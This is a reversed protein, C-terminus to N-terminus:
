AWRARRFEHDKGALRWREGCNLVRSRQSVSGPSFLQALQKHTQFYDVSSIDALDRQNSWENRYSITQLVFQNDM